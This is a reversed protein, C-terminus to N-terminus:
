VESRLRALMYTRDDAAVASGQFTNLASRFSANIEDITPSKSVVAAKGLVESLTPLGLMKGQENHLENLGDTYLAIVDGPLLMEERSEVEFPMCGLPLNDGYSFMRVAGTPDAIMAPPHGCNVQVVRGTAHDVDLAIMTVFTNSPLTECLYDNLRNMVNRLDFDGVLSTRLMSHLSTAILAAQMGKGCVDAVAFIVREPGARIVDIYDGGVWKCPEFGISVELRPVSIKKPVLRMQIQRASQLEQEVVAQEQAQRRARWSTEAQQYLEAALGALALWESNGFAGPLTVYVLDILTGQIGIPCAIAAMPTEGGALSLEVGPNSGSGGAVNSAVVPGPASRMAKLISRSVYPSEKSGWNRAYIPDILLQPAAEDGLGTDLRLIMSSNAHFLRSIFLRCLLRLREDDSETALLQSSLETLASLHQASIKAEAVDRLRVVPESPGGDSEIMTVGIQSKPVAAQSTRRRSSLTGPLVIRITYDEIGIVDGNHLVSEVIATGNLRTGNRSKLDRLFWAGADDQFLEAHHRSVTISEIRVSTEPARGIILRKQSLAIRNTQGQPGILEVFGTANDGTM